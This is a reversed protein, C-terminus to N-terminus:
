SSAEQWEAILRKAKRRLSKVRTRPAKKLCLDELYARFSPAIKRPQSPDDDGFYGISTFMIPATEPESAADRMIGTCDGDYAQTFVILDELKGADTLWRNLAIIHNKPELPQASLEAFWRVFYTSRSPLEVLLSPLHVGLESEIQEIDAPTPRPSPKWRDKWLPSVGFACDFLQFLLEDSLQPERTM